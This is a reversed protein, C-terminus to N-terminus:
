RHSGVEELVPHPVPERLPPPEAPAPTPPQGRGRFPRWRWLRKILNERDDFYTYM